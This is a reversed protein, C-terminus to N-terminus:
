LPLFLTAPPTLTAPRELMAPTELTALTQLTVPTKINRTIGTTIDTNDTINTIKNNHYKTTRIGNGITPCM